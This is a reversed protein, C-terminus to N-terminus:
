AKHGGIQRNRDRGTAGEMFNTGRLIANKGFRNRIEVMARQIGKERRIIEAEEKRQKELAAYDTFMDLQEGAAAGRGFGFGSQEEATQYEGGYARVAAQAGAETVVHGAVINVRRVLLSPDVIEDYLKMVAETLLKASSTQRKLNITGHAHKPVRRGYYDVTV